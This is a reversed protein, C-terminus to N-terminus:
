SAHEHARIEDWTDRVSSLRAIAADIDGARLEALGRSVDAV